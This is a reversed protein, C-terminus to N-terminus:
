FPHPLQEQLQQHTTRYDLHHIGHIGLREAAEINPKSDDIFLCTQPELSFERLLLQYIAEEPKIHGCEASFLIGDFQSLFNSQNRLHSISDLGMNSLVYLSYGAKKLREILSLMEPFPELSPAVAQYIQKVQHLDLKLEGSSLVAAQSTALTGRDVELWASHSFLKQALPTQQEPAIGCQALLSEPDWRVVVKGLDFVINAVM